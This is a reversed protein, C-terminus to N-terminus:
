VCIHNQGSHPWFVLLHLPWRITGFCGLILCINHLLLLHHFHMAMVEIETDKKWMVDLHDEDDVYCLETCDCQLQGVIHSHFIHWM